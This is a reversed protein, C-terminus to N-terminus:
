GAPPATAYRERIACPNETGFVLIMRECTRHTPPPIYGLGHGDLRYAEHVPSGGIYPPYDMDTDHGIHDLRM